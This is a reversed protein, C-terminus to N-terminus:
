SLQYFWIINIFCNIFGFRTRLTRFVFMVSENPRARRDAPKVRSQVIKYVNELHGDVFPQNTKFGGSCILSYLPVGQPPHSTVPLQLGARLCGRGQPKTRSLPLYKWHVRKRDQRVRQRHLRYSNKEPLFRAIKRLKKSETLLKLYATVYTQRAHDTHFYTEM